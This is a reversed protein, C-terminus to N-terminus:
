QSYTALQADSCFSARGGVGGCVVVIEQLHYKLQQGQLIHTKMVPLM